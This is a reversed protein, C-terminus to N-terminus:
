TFPQKTQIPDSEFGKFYYKYPMQGKTILNGKILHSTPCTWADKPPVGPPQTSQAMGPSVMLLVSTVVLLPLWKRKM